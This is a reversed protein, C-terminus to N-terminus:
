IHILSLEKSLKSAIRPECNLALLLNFQKRTCQISEPPGVSVGHETECFEVLRACQAEDMMGIHCLEPKIGLGKSVSAYTAPRSMTGMKWLRDM